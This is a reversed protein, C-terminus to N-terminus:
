NESPVPNLRRREKELEREFAELTALLTEYCHARFVGLEFEDLVGELPKTFSPAAAFAADHRLRM